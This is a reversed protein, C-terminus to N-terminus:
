RHLFRLLPHFFQVLALVGVVIGLGANLIGLVLKLRKLRGDFEERLEDSARILTQNVDHCHSLSKCIGAVSSREFERTGGARYCSHLDMVLDIYDIWVSLRLENDRSM